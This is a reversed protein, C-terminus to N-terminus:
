SGGEPVNGTQCSFKAGFLLKGPSASELARTVPDEDRPTTEVRVAVLGALRGPQGLSFWSEPLGLARAGNVTAMALLVCPDTKDRRWLLRMDDLVSIGCREVDAAPLNVISDTGLAVNVGAELMDRYRHPGFVREAGFYTSARPCYAVSTGTGALREIAADDADNVHAVVFRGAALVPELHEVPAVGRGIHDLVSADWLGLRELFERQPGAGEMVFRRVVMTEALHTALPLGLARAREVAWEYLRLDVTNPAHPQLGLRV